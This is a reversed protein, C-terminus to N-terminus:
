LGCETAQLAFPCAHHCTMEWSKQYGGASRHHSQWRKLAMMVLWFTKRGNFLSLAESVIFFSERMRLFPPLSKSKSFLASHDGSCHSVFGDSPTDPCGTRVDKTPNVLAPIMWPQFRADRQRSRPDRPRSADVNAGDTPVRKSLRCRFIDVGELLRENALPSSPYKSHRSAISLHCSSPSRCICARRWSVVLSLSSFATNRM